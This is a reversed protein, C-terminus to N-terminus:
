LQDYLNAPFMAESPYTTASGEDNWSNSPGSAMGYSVSPVSRPFLYLTQEIGTMLRKTSFPHILHFLRNLSIVLNTKDVGSGDFHSSLKVSRAQCSAVSETSRSHERELQVPRIAAM